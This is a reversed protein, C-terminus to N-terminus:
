NYELLPPEAVPSAQIECKACTLLSTCLRCSTARWFNCEDTYSDGNWKQTHVCQVCRRAPGEPYSLLIREGRSGHVLSSPSVHYWPQKSLPYSCHFFGSFLDPNASLKGVRLHSLLLDEIGHGPRLDISGCWHLRSSLQESEVYQSQLQNQHTPATSYSRFKDSKKSM